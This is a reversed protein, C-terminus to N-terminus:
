VFHNFICSKIAQKFAFSANTRDTNFENFFHMFLIFIFAVQICNVYIFTM